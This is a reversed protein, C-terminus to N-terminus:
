KSKKKFCIPKKAITKNQDNLDQNYSYPLLKFNAVSSNILYDIILYIKIGLVNFYHKPRQM